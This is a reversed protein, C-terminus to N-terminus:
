YPQLVWVLKHVWFGGGISGAEGLPVRGHCTWPCLLHRGEMAEQQFSFTHDKAIWGGHVSGGSLSDVTFILM